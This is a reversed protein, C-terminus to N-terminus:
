RSVYREPQEVLDYIERVGGLDFMVAVPKFVVQYTFDKRAKRRYDVKRLLLRAKPYAKRMKNWKDVFVGSRKFGNMMKPSLQLKWHKTQVVYEVLACMKGSKQRLNYKDILSSYIYQNEKENCEVNIQASQIDEVPDLDKPAQDKNWLLKIKVRGNKLEDSRFHMRSWTFLQKHLPNQSQYDHIKRKELKTFEARAQKSNPFNTYFLAPPLLKGNLAFFSVEDTIYDLSGLEYKKKKKFDASSFTKSVEGVAWASSSFLGIVLVILGITLINRTKM